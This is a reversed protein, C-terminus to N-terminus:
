PVELPPTMMRLLEAEMLPVLADPTDEPEMETNEPLAVPALEEPATLMAVPSECAAPGIERATPLLEADEPPLTDMEAPADLEPM